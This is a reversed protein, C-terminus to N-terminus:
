LGPDKDVQMGQSGVGSFSEGGLRGARTNAVRFQVITSSASRGARPFGARSFMTKINLPLEIRETERDQLQNERGWTNAFLIVQPRGNPFLKTQKFIVPVIKNPRRLQHDEARAWCAWTRLEFNSARSGKASVYEQPFDCARFRTSPLPLFLISPFFSLRCVGVIQNMGIGPFL